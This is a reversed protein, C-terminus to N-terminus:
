LTTQSARRERARKIRAIDKDTIDRPPIACTKCFDHELRRLLLEDESLETYHGIRLRSENPFACCLYADGKADIAVRDAILTCIKKPINEDTLDIKATAFLKGELYKGFEAANPLPTKPDGYAPIAIFGIKLRKCLEIWPAKEHANYPWELYRIWISTKIRGARLERSLIEVNEKIWDSRGGVHNIQYTEQAFGSVSVFLIDVGAALTRVMSDAYQKPPLSLNSSLWCDMGYEKITPIYQDLTKCLFPETWNILTVNPYGEAAVKKVIERFKPVAM